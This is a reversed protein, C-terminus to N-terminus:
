GGRSLRTAVNRTYVRQQGTRQAQTSPLLQALNVTMIVGPLGSRVFVDIIWSPCGSVSPFTSFTTIQAILFSALVVLFSQGLFLQSLNDTESNEPFILHKIALAKPAASMDDATMHRVGLLGVQFGEAVYLLLLALLLLVSEPITGGLEAVNCDLSLALGVFVVSFLLLFVSFLNAAVDMVHGVSGLSGM